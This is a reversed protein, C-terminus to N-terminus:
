LIHYSYMRRERFLIAMPRTEVTFFFPYCFICYTTIITINDHARDKSSFCHYSRAITKKKKTHTRRPDNRFRVDPSRRRTSAEFAPRTSRHAATPLIIIANRASLARTIIAVTGKGVASLIDTTSRTSRRPRYRSALADTMAVTVTATTSTHEGMNGTTENKNKHNNNNM